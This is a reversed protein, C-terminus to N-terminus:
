GSAGRRGPKEDPDTREFFRKKNSCTAVVEPSNVAVHIGANLFDSAALGLLVAPEDGGPILVDIGLAVCLELVSKVYRTRGVVFTGAIEVEYHGYAYESIDCGYIRYRGGCMLCKLIETGLSAGGIGAVMVKFMEPM